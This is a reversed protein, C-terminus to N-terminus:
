RRVGTRTNKRRCGVSGGGNLFICFLVSKPGRTNHLIRIQITNHITSYKTNHIGPGPPQRMADRRDEICDRELLNAFLGLLWSGLDSLLRSFNPLPLPSLSFYFNKQRTPM